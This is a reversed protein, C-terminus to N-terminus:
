LKRWARGDRSLLADAAKPGWSGPSYPHVKLAKGELMPSLFEWSREVADRRIFLTPDGQMADLLLREYAEPPDEGFTEDYDFDMTLSGLCFKPGPRKAEFTLSIGEDPQIRLVLVNASVDSPRLGPVLSHPIQKFSVAIEAARKGLKKGTRLYFPVGAFRWSNVELRMAAFTPTLSKPSVGKEKRYGEYQGLVVDASPALSRLVQIKENRVSEADFSRPPEMATLALLQLMHNQFMDRLVGASDYYGARHEVGLEELASIQVHDIYRRDWLPEFISNMFRFILINQVTEKGLYHDIRYVQAESLHRAFEKELRLASKLDTGIPKEVIVRSWGGPRLGDLLKAAALRHVIKAYLSPPVALYFLVNDGKLLGKLKEYTRGDEYDGRLYPRVGPAESRGVGVVRFDKALLKRRRLHALSPFLKRSALDGSAGFIVLTCPVPKHEICLEEKLDIRM